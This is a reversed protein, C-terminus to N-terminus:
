SPRPKGHWRCNTSRWATSSPPPKANSMGQPKHLIRIATGGGKGKSTIEIQFDLGPATKQARAKVTAIVEPTWAGNGLEVWLKEIRLTAKAGHPIQSLPFLFQYCRNTTKMVNPDKAHLLRVESNYTTQGNVTLSAYPNWPRLNPMTICVTAKVGEPTSAISQLATRLSVPHETLRYGGFGEVRFAANAQARQPRFAAIGLIAAALVIAAVLGGVIRPRHFNSNSM